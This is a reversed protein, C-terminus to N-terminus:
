PLVVMLTACSDASPFDSTRECCTNWVGDFM